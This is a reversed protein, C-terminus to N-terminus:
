TKKPTILSPKLVYLIQLKLWTFIWTIMKLAFLCSGTVSGYRETFYFFKTPILYPSRKSLFISQFTVLPSNDSGFHNRFDLKPHVGGLLRVEIDGIVCAQFGVRTARYIYTDDGSYHPFKQADPLGIAKYVEIPIGVCWGSLGEAALIEGKNAAFGRRGVFANNQKSLTGDPAEAYCTPAAITGPHSRLYNVLQFLADGVPVCDDNLWIFYEAQREAAQQMGLAMAGTWWLDGTGPLILTEPFRDRIAEATGDTSGDDIVMAYYRDLAGTQQLRSLCALTTERRNFVPILIYVSEKQTTSSM